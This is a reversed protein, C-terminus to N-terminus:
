DQCMKNAISRHAGVGMCCSPIRLVANNKTPNKLRDMCYIVIINMPRLTFWRKSNNSM